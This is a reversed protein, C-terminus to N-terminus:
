NGNCLYSSLNDRSLGGSCELLVKGPWRSKISKAAIRLGEGTFNDLMVLDAGATIAEEAEEETGCEVEVKLAFGGVSKAAKVAETISGKSWIHNDKLMIMSSLDHRHGDVGGVLMGYKEVLRFGPTTKRTGAIIGNYGSKRASELLSKSETAIGSCRALINLAVREGLLIKRAPGEVSAVQVSKKAGEIYKGEEYLWKVSYDVISCGLRVQL